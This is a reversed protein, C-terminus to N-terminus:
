ANRVHVLAAPWASSTFRSGRWNAMAAHVVITYVVAAVIDFVYHEGMYVVAVWVAAPYLFALWGWRPFKKQLFLAMMLPYTAHLSPVAAVLNVGLYQYVTPLTVPHTFTSLVAAMIRTVQPLYGAKGAMWPPMAPFAYYTIFAMYSVIVMSAMYRKFLPRDVAWFVLGVLLPVFFHLFYLVVAATDYWHTQGHFFKQQLQITPIGGFLWRDFRIMPLIHARHVLDPLAGRLCDYGVLLLIPPTWDQLFTGERGVVVLGVLALGFFQDPVVFGHHALM